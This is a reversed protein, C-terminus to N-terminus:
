LAITLRDAVTSVGPASWAAREADEKEAWSRVSGKLTVKGDSTEVRIRKSDLEASRKLAAEIKDQVAAASVRPRVKILNTLGRVGTLFRASREAAIREYNWEIEGELTVWGDEVKVKIVDRPVETDWKLSDV